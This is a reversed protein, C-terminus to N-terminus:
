GRLKEIEAALRAEEATRLSPPTRRTERPDLYRLPKEGRQDANRTPSPTADKTM